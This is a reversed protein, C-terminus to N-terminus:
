LPLGHAQPGKQSTHKVLSTGLEMVLPIFGTAISPLMEPVTAMLTFRTTLSLFVLLPCSRPTQLTVHEYNQLVLGISDIFSPNHQDGIHAHALLICRSTSM